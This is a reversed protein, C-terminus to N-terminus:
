HHTTNNKYSYRKNDEEKLVTSRSPLNTITHASSAEVNTHTPPINTSKNTIENDRGSSSITILSNCNKETKNQDILTIPEKNVKARGHIPTESGEVTNDVVEITVNGM